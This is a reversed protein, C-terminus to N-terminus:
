HEPLVFRLTDSEHEEANIVLSFFQWPKERVEM